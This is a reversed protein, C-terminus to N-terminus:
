FATFRVNLFILYTKMAERSHFGRVKYMWHWCLSPDDSKVAIIFKSPNFETLDISTMTLM